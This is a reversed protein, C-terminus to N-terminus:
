KVFEMKMLDQFMGLDSFADVFAPTPEKLAVAREADVAAAAIAAITLAVAGDIQDVGSADITFKEDGAARAANLVAQAADVGSKEPLVHIDTSM